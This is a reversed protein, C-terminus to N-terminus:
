AFSYISTVCYSLRCCFENCFNVDSLELNSMPQGRGPPSEFHKGSGVWKIQPMTGTVVPHAIPM